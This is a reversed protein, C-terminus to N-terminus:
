FKIEVIKLEELKSAGLARLAEVLVRADAETYIGKVKGQTICPFSTKRLIVYSNTPFYVVETLESIPVIVRQHGCLLSQQLYNTEGIEYKRLIKLAVSNPMLDAFSKEKSSLQEYTACSVLLFAILTSFLHKKM